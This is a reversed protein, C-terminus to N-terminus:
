PAGHLQRSRGRHSGHHRPDRALRRRQAGDHWGRFCLGKGPTKESEPLPVQLKMVRRRQEDEQALIAKGAAEAIQRVTEKAFHVNYDEEFNKGAEDISPILAALRSVVKAAAWSVGHTQFRLVADHPYCEEKCDDCRWRPRRGTLLRTGCKRGYIDM